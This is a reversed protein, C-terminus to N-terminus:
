IYLIPICYITYLLIGNYGIMCVSIILIYYIPIYITYSHIYITYPIYITYLLISILIYLIIISYTYSVVHTYTNNGIILRAPILWYVDPAVTM